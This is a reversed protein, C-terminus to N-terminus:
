FGNPPRGRRGGGGWGKSTCCVEDKTVCDYVAPTCERLKLARRQRPVADDFNVNHARVGPGYVDWLTKSFFQGYKALWYTKERISQAGTIELTALQKAFNPITIYLKATGLIDGSFNAGKYIKVFVVTTDRLGIEWFHNKHINKVGYFSYTTNNEGNLVMKYLMQKSPNDPKDNKASSFLQFRGLLFLFVMKIQSFDAEYKHLYSSRNGEILDLLPNGNVSFYNM